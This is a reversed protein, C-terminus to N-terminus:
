DNAADINGSEAEADGSAVAEEENSGGAETTAAAGEVEGGAAEAAETSVAAAEDGADPAPAQGESSGEQTPISQEGEESM